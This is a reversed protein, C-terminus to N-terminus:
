VAGRARAIGYLVVTFALAVGYPVKLSEPNDLSVEPGPLRLNALAALMHGMNRLTERVRGKYIILVVAMAGAVFISALLLNFMVGPGVFAGLAGALKWDGAGLSRLIVLPLLLLLALGAGLLSTKLGQWGGALINAAIGVFLGSVTLWNPIRRSRYDTWGAIAALLVALALIGAKLDAGVRPSLSGTGM